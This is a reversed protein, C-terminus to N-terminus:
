MANCTLWIAGLHVQLCESKPYTPSDSVCNSGAVVVSSLLGASVTSFCVVSSLDAVTRWMVTM